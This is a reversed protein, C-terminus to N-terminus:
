SEQILATLESPSVAYHEACFHCRVELTERQERAERLDERGLATIARLVRERNCGCHFRPTSYHRTRSGLGSMLRDAMQDANLGDRVMEGPGPFGRVNEEAQEVDEERAEPLVQVLFGGAAQIGDEGLFVGLAVASQIQESEVLYHALDQAVSGSELPVLGSYPEGAGARERVVALVGQGVAGAVDLRGEVPPPHASPNAVYGRAHGAANATAVLTGLPGDGRFQLQISEEHKASAALLTAGMLARGLAASATPSTQHRRAAEAVLGTGVLVRLSIGGEQSLTRLMRDASPDSSQVREM